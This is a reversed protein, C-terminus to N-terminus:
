TRILKAEHQKLCKRATNGYASQDARLEPFIAFLEERAQESVAGMGIDGPHFSETAAGEAYIVEHRDFMIHIYTVMKQEDQTVDLGDVLHKASVLVESEGFLLEARYGQFLVRHQPSVILDRDQGALVNKRIRVPAFRDIAPVNRGELWRVPQLGHDRTVVLDGVELDEIAVLGHPTAIRTGPTFCIINEIESFNLITGDDLTISGSYSGTGDDVFTDRVDQTLIGLSGLQLTDGTTEDGTGGDITITGNSTEGLDELVITDDGSGADVTDGESFTVTDDGAGATLSDSGTGGTLSDDGDGTNFTDDGAGGFVVDNGDNTTVVDDGSDGLVTDNGSGTEIAEIESFTATDTSGSLTGAEPGSFDVTVDETLASGDINDGNTEGTEGGVITDDGFSDNLVFTDDGAEGDLSDAGTSGTLMDNGAGAAVTSGGTASTGDFTDNQDTLDLNEIEAFTGDGGDTPFTYSGAEDGTMTVNVGDPGTGDTFDLTDVDLGDTDEGGTITDTGNSTDVLITDDGLGAVVTDDGDGGALTDNASGNGQDILTDNDAGGYLEDNADGTGTYLTDNGEGGYLTGQAGGTSGEYLVDDGTGGYITDFGYGGYVEDDGDGAIVTDNGSGALILDDNGTDGALIADNGDVVDGDPDGNYSADITDNGSTGTVTGDRETVTVNEINTFVLSSGDNFYVTGNETNGTDYDIYDVDSVILTDNDTGTESGDIVDGGGGYIVDDDAGGTLVDAGDGGTLTDDGAGADVTSGDTALAGDFTDDQDTLVFDEIQTFTGDGGDTPFTYSGEESATLTVNVGDTGSTDTFTLTDVDSGDADEGGIITDIGEGATVNIDDSGQGGFVSDNGAGGDLEDDGQLGYVTDDGAGGDISDASTDQTAATGDMGILQINDLQVGDVDIPGIEKFELRNAGDGAGGILDFTFSEMGGEVPDITAILEGGWYIEVSNGGGNVDGADLTLTYTEGTVAGTIDQYVHLNAPTGGMDLVHTGDTAYTGGKGNDHLDFDGGNYDTWGVISGYGQDGWSTDVTGTLDEFSGNVILNGVEGTEGGYLVDDDSGGDITDAGEGGYVEDDGAGASISDGGGYAEILDDDNVDGSLIADDADVFDGDPDGDYTGDITDAGSTGSVTGDPLPIGIANLYFPDDADTASIGDLLVSEGNPFTLLANGSGDDSVTVDNTNVPVGDADNLATVDFTDLGTFTGDGNATPADFNFITDNGSGDQLIITDADGDSGGGNQGLDLADDGAGLNILDEGENTAVTDTGSSGTISDDGTGLFITEIEEFTATSTGDSLTGSEGDTPSIATLDLTLDATVDSADLVDGFTEGTEGGTITDNGFSGDLDIIDDGAGADIADDGEGAALQDSGAGGVFSDDGTSGTLTDDGAGADVTSGGTALTGDFQDNQDTLEFNEIGSFTGDGTDTPFSYTGDEDGSLTVIAGTPGNADSLSLTDTDLGDSDEGGFITDAGEGSSINFTDSGDGGYVEDDGAGASIEDNGGYGYILDDNGTDGALIADDNDVMDREPDGDYTDDIVDAGSTGEVTGDPLDVADFHVDTVWLAQGGSGNNNYDIEISSVPGEIEVLISGTETAASGNAVDSTLTLNTGSFSSGNWTLNVEILNGDLDYARVSVVDIWSSTDFDNIRFTVNDVDDSFGSGSVASFDITTTSTNGVGGSGGLQLSSNTAFTEGAATDVYQNSTAISSNNGNGDNVYSVGVNIGGTDQSVGGSINGSFNSWNFTLPTAM